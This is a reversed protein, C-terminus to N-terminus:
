GAWPAALWDDCPLVTWARSRQRVTGGLANKCHNPPASFRRGAAHDAIAAWPRCAPRHVATRPDRFRVGGRLVTVAHILM